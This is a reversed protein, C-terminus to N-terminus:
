ALAQAAREVVGVAAQRHELWLRPQHRQPLEADEGEDDRRGDHHRESHGKLGLHLDRHAVAELQHVLDEVHGEDDVHEDRAVNRKSLIAEEHAHAPENHHLVEASPKREVEDRRKWERPNELAAIARTDRHRGRRGRDTAVRARSFDGLDVLEEPQHLQALQQADELEELDEVLKGVLHGEVRGRRSSPRANPRKKM